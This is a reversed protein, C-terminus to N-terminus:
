TADGQCITTTIMAARRLVADGRLVARHSAIVALDALPSATAAIGDHDAIM